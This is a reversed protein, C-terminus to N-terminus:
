VQVSIPREYTLPTASIRSPLMDFISPRSHEVSKSSWEACSKHQHLSETFPFEEQNSTSLPCQCISGEEGFRYSVENPDVWMTFERPLYLSINSLGTVKAAESLVPDMKGNIRICRYASGKRPNEPHWHNKYKKELLEGLRESFPKIFQVPLNKSLMMRALFECACALEIKM